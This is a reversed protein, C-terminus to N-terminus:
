GSDQSWSILAVLVVAGVLLATDTATGIADDVGTGSAVGSVVGEFADSVIRFPLTLIEGATEFIGM